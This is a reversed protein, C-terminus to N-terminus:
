NEDVHSNVFETWRIPNLFNNQPIEGTLEYLRRDAWMDYYYKEDEYTEKITQMLSRQANLANSELPTITNELDMFAAKFAEETPFSYVKVEDLAIADEKMVQIIGYDARELFDPIVFISNLYRVDNFILTDGPQAKISFFGLSDSIAVKGGSKNLVTTGIVPKYGPSTVVVGSIRLTDQASSRCALFMCLVIVVIRM